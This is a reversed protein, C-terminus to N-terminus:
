LEMEGMPCIAKGDDILGWAVVLGSTTAAVGRWGTRQSLVEPAYKPVDPREDGAAEAAGWVRLAEDTLLIRAVPQRAQKDWGWGGVASGAPPGAYRDIWRDANGLCSEKQPLAQTLIKGMFPQAWAPPAPAPGPLMPALPPHPAPAEVEPAKAPRCACLAAVALCALAIRKM